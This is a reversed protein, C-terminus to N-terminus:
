TTSKKQVDHTAFTKCAVKMELSIVIMVIVSPAKCSHPDSAFNQISTRCAVKMALSIVIMMIVSPAKCSHPDSTFNQRSTRLTYMLKMELSIAIMIVAPIYM